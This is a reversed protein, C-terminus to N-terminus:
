YILKQILTLPQLIGPVCFLARTGAYSKPREFVMEDSQQQDGLGYLQVPHQHEQQQQQHEAVEYIQVPTIDEVEQQEKVSIGNEVHNDEHNQVHNQM